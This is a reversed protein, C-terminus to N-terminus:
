LDYDGSDEGGLDGMSEEIEEPSEGAELRDVMEDFEPGMDEGMEASMKRMWRAVSKPDNEDLGALSSPDALSELRSEESRVVTVRSILRHLADSGCEPCLPMSTDSYSRLLTVRRRCGKCRYEYLPM